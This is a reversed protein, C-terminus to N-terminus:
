QEAEELKKISRWGYKESIERSWGDESPDADEVIERIQYCYPDGRLQANPFRMVLHSSWGRVAACDGMCQGIGIKRSDMELAVEKQKCYLMLLHWRTEELEVDYVGSTLSQAGTVHWRAYMKQFMGALDSDFDERFTQGGEYQLDWWVKELTDLVVEEGFAAVLAKAMRTYIRLWEKALERAEWALAQKGYESRQDEVSKDHWPPIQAWDM